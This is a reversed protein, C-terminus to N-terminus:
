ITARIRGALDRLGTPTTTPAYLMTTVLDRVSSRAIEGPAHREAALLAQTARDTRGHLHWARATDVCYRGYREPTPIETPRVTAAHHLATASDGLATHISIRYGAVTSPCFPVVEGAVMHGDLRDAAAAAETIFTDASSADGSQASSYAATCLLRGYASLVGPTPTRRHADDLQGATAALLHIAAQHHGERRMTIAFLNTAIAATLTDGSQRAAGRGRDALVWATADDGYKTVVSSALGYARALMGAINERRSGTAEGFATHLGALLTPLTRTLEAYRSDAYARRAADLSTKAADITVAPAQQDIALLLAAPGAASAPGTTALGAIAGGIAGGLLTRRQVPDGGGGRLTDAPSPQQQSGRQAPTDHQTVLPALGLYQGPIHLATALLRRTAIEHLPGEGHEIRSVTSASYGTRAGFEAQTLGQAIRCLRVVDGPRDDRVARDLEPWTDISFADM